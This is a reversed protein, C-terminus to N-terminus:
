QVAQVSEARGREVAQAARLWRGSEPIQGNQEHVLAQEDQAEGIRGQTGGGFCDGDSSCYRAYSECDVGLDGASKGGNQVPAAVIGRHDQAQEIDDLGEARFFVKDRCLVVQGRM